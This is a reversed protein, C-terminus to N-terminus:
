ETDIKGFHSDMMNLVRKFCLASDTTLSDKNHKILLNRFQIEKDDIRNTKSYFSCQFSNLFLLFLSLFAIKINSAKM